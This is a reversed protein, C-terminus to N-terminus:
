SPRRRGGGKTSEEPPPIEARRSTRDARGHAMGALLTKTRLVLTDHGAAAEPPKKRGLFTGKQKLLTLNILFNRNQTWFTDNQLNAVARLNYFFEM